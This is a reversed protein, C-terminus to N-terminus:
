GWIAQEMLSVSPLPMFDLFSTEFFLWIVTDRHLPYKTNPDALLDQFLHFTNPEFPFYTKSVSACRISVIKIRINICVHIPLM